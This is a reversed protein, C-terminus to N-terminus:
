KNEVQFESKGYRLVLGSRIERERASWTQVSRFRVYPRQLAM